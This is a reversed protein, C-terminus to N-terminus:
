HKPFDYNRSNIYTKQRRENKQWGCEKNVVGGERTIKKCARKYISPEDADETCEEYCSAEGKCSGGDNLPNNVYCELSVATGAMAIVITLLKLTKM